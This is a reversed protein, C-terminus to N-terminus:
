LEIRAGHLAKRELDERQARTMRSVDPGAAVAPGPGKRSDTKPRSIGGDRALRTGGGKSLPPM